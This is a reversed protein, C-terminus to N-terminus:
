QYREEVTGGRTIETVMGGGQKWAGLYIGRDPLRRGGSERGSWSSVAAVARKAGAAEAAAVTLALALELVVTAAEEAASITGGATWAKPHTDMKAHTFVM